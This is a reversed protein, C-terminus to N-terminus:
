TSRPSSRSASAGRITNIEPYAKGAAKSFIAMSIPSLWMERGGSQFRYDRSAVVIGRPSEVKIPMKLEPCDRGFAQQLREEVPTVRPPEFTGEPIVRPFYRPPLAPLGDIGGLAQAYTVYAALFVVVGAALLLVRRPTWV